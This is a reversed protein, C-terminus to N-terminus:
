LELEPGASSADVCTCYTFNFHDAVGPNAFHPFFFFFFQTVYSISRSTLGHLDVMERWAPPPEELLMQM